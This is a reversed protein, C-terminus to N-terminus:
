SSAMSAALKIFGQELGIAPKWDLLEQTERQDFWHATALQEALFRTMPPDGQKDLAQWLMEIAGGATIAVASPVHRLQTSLGASQLIRGIIEKVTRPQGNSVVLARGAARETNDVGAVIASAANDIYTTDIFAQGSGVLVLKGARARDIIRQTLQTDGPGWVLHPRLSVVKMADSNAALAIIEGLAKSRAYHGRVNDPDAAGAEVGVLSKGAHAVSPSSVHVFRPVEASQAAQIMRRTGEINVAEFLGWRGSVSVKAALHVVADCGKMANCLPKLPESVGLDCCLEDVGELGSQRRQVVTVSDGRQLLQGVVHRGILSTAGTVLVKM